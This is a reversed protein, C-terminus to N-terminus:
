ATWGQQCWQGSAGASSCGRFRGRNSRSSGRSRMCGLRLQLQLGPSSPQLSSPSLIFSSPDLHLPPTSVENSHPALASFSPEASAAQGGGGEWLALLVGGTKDGVAVMDEAAQM